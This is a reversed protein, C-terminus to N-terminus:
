FRYSIGVTLMKVNIAFEGNSLTTEKDIYSVADIFFSQRNDIKYSLGAGYSFDNQRTKNNIIGNFAVQNQFEVETQGYGLLAYVNVKPTVQYNPRLYIGVSYNHTLKDGTGMAMSGRVELALSEYVDYGVIMRIDTVTDDDYFETSVSGTGLGLGLYYKEQTHPLYIQPEIEVGTDKTEGGANLISLLAISTCVAIIMRKKM